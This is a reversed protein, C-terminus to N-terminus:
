EDAAEIKREAILEDALLRRDQVNKYFSVQDQVYQLAQRRTLLLMKGDEMHLILEDGIDVGLAKRFEIPIVIRGGESIKM